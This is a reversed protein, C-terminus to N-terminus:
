RGGPSPTPTNQPNNSPNVPNNPDSPNNPDYSQGTKPNLM